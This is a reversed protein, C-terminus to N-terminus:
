ARTHMPAISFARVAVCVVAREVLVCHGEVRAQVHCRAVLDGALAEAAQSAAVSREGLAGHLRAMAPPLAEQADIRWASVADRLDDADAGGTGGAPARDPATAAVIRQAAANARLEGACALAWVLDAADRADMGAFSRADLAAAVAQALPAAGTQV